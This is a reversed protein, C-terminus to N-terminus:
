SDDVNFYGLNLPSQDGRPFFTVQGRLRTVGTGTVAQSDKMSCQGVNIGRM